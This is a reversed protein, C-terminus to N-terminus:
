KKDTSRAMRSKIAQIADHLSLTNLRYISQKRGEMLWRRDKASPNPVEIYDHRALTSPIQRRHRIDALWAYAEHLHLKLAGDRLDSITLIGPLGGDAKKLGELIDGIGVDTSSRNANVIAWFAETKPPPAMPNFGALDLQRLYAAVHGNGGNNLWDHLENFYAEGPQNPLLESWAVYHRRDDAPLYIGNEKYNTTMIVKVVNKIYYGGLYKENVELMEPPAATLPKMREYLAYISEDGLDHMENVRLVVTRQWKNFKEFLDPPRVEAINWDGLAMRLPALITDKGIGQAGGMLLAHNIKVGPFQVTHGLFDIIWCADDDGYVTYVHDVWRGAQRRDGSIIAPPRYLNYTRAGQKFVYGGERAVRDEIIEGQGPEWSMQEVVATKMIFTSAALKIPKGDEGVANLRVKPLRKDVTASPWLEGTLRYIFKGSPSHGILDDYRIIPRRQVTGEVPPPPPTETNDNGADEADTEGISRLAAALAEHDVSQRRKKM